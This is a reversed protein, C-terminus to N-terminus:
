RQQKLLLSLRLADIAIAPLSASQGVPQIPPLLITVFFLIGLMNTYEGLLLFVPLHKDWYTPSVLASLRSDHLPQGYRIRLIAGNPPTM